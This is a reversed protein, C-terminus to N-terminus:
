FGDYGTQKWWNESRQYKILKSDNGTAKDTFHLYGDEDLWYTGNGREYMKDPNKECQQKIYDYLNSGGTGEMHMEMAVEVDSLEKAEKFSALEMEDMAKTTRTLIGNSGEVLSLSVGALILLVIITVILAVLTIGDQKKKQDKLNDKM